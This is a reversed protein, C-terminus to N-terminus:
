NRAPEALRLDAMEQEARAQPVEAPIVHGVFVGVMMGLRVYSDMNTAETVSM